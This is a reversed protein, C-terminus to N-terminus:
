AATAEAKEASALVERVANVGLEAVIKGLQEASKGAGAVGAAAQAAAGVPARRTQCSAATGAPDQNCGRSLAAVLRLTLGQLM